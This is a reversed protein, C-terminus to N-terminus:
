DHLPRGEPGAELHMELGEGAKTQVSPAQAMWWADFREIVEIYM